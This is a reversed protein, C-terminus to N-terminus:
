SYVERPFKSKVKNSLVTILDRLTGISPSAQRLFYVAPNLPEALPPGPPCAPGALLCPPCTSPSSLVAQGERPWHADRTSLWISM